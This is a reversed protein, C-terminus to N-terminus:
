PKRSELIAELEILRAAYDVAVAPGFVRELLVKSAAVDGAKSLKVLTRIVAAVDAPKVAELM